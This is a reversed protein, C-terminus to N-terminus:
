APKICFRVHLIANEIVVTTRQQLDSFCRPGTYRIFLHKCVIDGDLNPALKAASLEKFSGVDCESVPCARELLFLTGLRVTISYLSGIRASEVSVSRLSQQMM